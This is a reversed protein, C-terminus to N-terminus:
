GAPLLVTFTSGHGPESDLAIAGGHARVAGLASALGLGHGSEKTTFFPDFIRAQTTADMGVGDDSVQLMVYQAAPRPAVLPCPAAIGADLVTSTRIVVRSGAGRTAEVANILLNLVLQRLQVPDAEVPPVPDLDQDIQVPTGPLKRAYRAVEAALASVDVPGPNPERKGAFTLLQEVLGAARDAAARSETLADSLEDPTPSMRALEINAAIVTLLNNFDHAIGGAMLGLSELKLAQVRAGEIRKRETIDRITVTAGIVQGRLGLVPSFCGEWWAPALEPSRFAREITFANGALAKQVEGLFPRSERFFPYDLLNTGETVPTGTVRQFLVGGAANIRRITLDPAIIAMADRSGRFLAEIEARSEALAQQAQKERTIDMYVGVMWLPTGDAARETVKGRSRVWHWEGSAARLRWESEYTETEGDLHARWARTVAKQDGRHMHQLFDFTEVPGGHHHGFSEWFGKQLVTTEAVLDAEWIWLGAAELAVRLAGPEPRESLEHLQPM